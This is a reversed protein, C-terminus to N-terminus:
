KPCSLSLRQTATGTRRARVVQRRMESHAPAPQSWVIQGHRAGSAPHTDPQGNDDHLNEKCAFKSYLTSFISDFVFHCKKRQRIDKLNYM